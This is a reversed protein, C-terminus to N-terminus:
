IAMADEMEEELSDKTSIDESSDVEKSDVIDKKKAKSPSKTKKSKSKIEPVSEVSSVDEPDTVFKARPNTEDSGVVLRLVQNPDRMVALPRSQFFCSFKSPETYEKTKIFYKRDVKPNAFDFIGGFHMEGKTKLSPFIVEYDGLVKKVTNTHHDYYKGSYTFIEFDDFNGKYRLGEKKYPQVFSPVDNNVGHRRSMTEKYTNTAQFLDWAKYGMYVELTTHNGVEYLERTATELDKFVKRKPNTWDKIQVGDEVQTWAGKQAVSLDVNLRKHRGYDLVQYTLGKGAITQTCHILSEAGMVELRNTFLEKMKAIKEKVIELKRKDVDNKATTIDEGARRYTLGDAYIEAKMKVSAPTFAKTTYSNQEIGDALSREHVMPAISPLTEDVADFTVFKTKHVYENEKLYRDYFYKPFEATKDFVKMMTSSQYLIKDLDYKM